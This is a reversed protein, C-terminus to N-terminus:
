THHKNWEEETLYLKGDQLLPPPPPEEFAEKAARLRGALNAITLSWVDLLTFISLAVHKLRQPVCRLIKEVIVYEEVIEDLTAMTAVMGNGSLSIRLRKV